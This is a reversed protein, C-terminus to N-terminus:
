IYKEKVEAKPRLAFLSYASEEGVLCFDSHVRFDIASPRLPFHQQYRVGRKYKAEGTELIDWFYVATRTAIGKWPHGGNRFSEFIGEVCAVRAPDKITGEKTLENLTEQPFVYVLTAPPKTLNPPRSFGRRLLFEVTERPNLVRTELTEVQSNM